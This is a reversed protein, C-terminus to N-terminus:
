LKQFTIERITRTKPDIRYHLSPEDGYSCLEDRCTLTQTQPLPDGLGLNDKNKIQPSLVHIASIKKGSADSVIQAILRDGRKMQYIIEPNEPSIQSLKEFEFGSLSTSIQTFPTNPHIAGLGEESITLPYPLANDSNSCGILLFASLLIRYILLSEGGDAPPLHTREM